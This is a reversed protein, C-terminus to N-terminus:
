NMVCRTVFQSPKISCGCIACTLLTSAGDSSLSLSSALAQLLRSGYEARAAGGQEFEVIHRGIEWCAQVQVADVARIVRQRVEQILERLSHLLAETGQSSDKPKDLDNAM